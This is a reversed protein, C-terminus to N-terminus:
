FFLEASGDVRAESERVKLVYGAVLIIPALVMCREIVRTIELDFNM